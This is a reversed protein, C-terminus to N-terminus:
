DNPLLHPEIKLDMKEVLNELAPDRFYLQIERNSGHGLLTNVFNSQGTEDLSKLRELLQPIVSDFIVKPRKEVEGLFTEKNLGAVEVLDAFTKVDFVVVGEFRNDIERPYSSSYYIDSISLNKFSGRELIIEGSAINFGGQRKAELTNEIIFLLRRENPSDLFAIMVGLDEKITKLTTPSTGFSLNALGASNLKNLSSELQGLLTILEEGGDNFFLALGKTQLEDLSTNVEGFASFLDKLENLPALRDESLVTKDVNRNKAFSAVRSGIFYLSGIVIFFATFAAFSIVTARKVRESVFPLGLSWRDPKEERRPIPRIDHLTPDIKRVPM